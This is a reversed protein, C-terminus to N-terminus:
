KAVLFSAVCGCCAYMLYMKIIGFFGFMGSLDIDPIFDLFSRGSEPYPLFPDKNPEKREDGVPNLESENM